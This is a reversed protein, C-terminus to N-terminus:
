RTHWEVLLLSPRNGRYVANIYQQPVTPASAEQETQTFPTCLRTMTLLLRTAKKADVVHVYCM